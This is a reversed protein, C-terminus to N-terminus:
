KSTTAAADTSSNSSATTSGSASGSGTSVSGARNVSSLSRDFLLRVKDEGSSFEVGTRTISVVWQMGGLVMQQGDSVVRSGGPGNIIAKKRSHSTVVFGDLAQTKDIRKTEEIGNRVVIAQTDKNVTASASGRVPIVLVGRAGDHRIRLDDLIPGTKPPAWVVTLPCAEIPELVIGPKCGTRGISLGNELGGLSIDDIKMDVDGVNVLSVTMSAENSVTGFDMTEQSSVMLGQGPVAEPFIKAAEIRIPEYKGKLTVSAVKTPGDHQVVLVGEAQGKASPSWTVTAICAQGVQLKACDTVLSYGAQPAAEIAVSTVNIPESTVNRFVVSKIIPRSSDLSGFDLEGPIAEVDSLLKDSGEEGQAVSGNLTSTVIKTKGDHRVLMDVRWKGTKIGKVSVVTACESGAPLPEKGCEDLAITASVTSSPYLNIQGITVEKSSDNRFRVVVQSTSGITVEGAEIKGEVPSLGGGGASSSGRVGPDNLASAAMSPSISVGLTFVSVTLASFASLAFAGLGKRYDTRLPTAYQSSFQM